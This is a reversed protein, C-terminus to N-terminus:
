QPVRPTSQHPSPLCDMRLWEADAPPPVPDLHDALAFQTVAIHLFNRWKTFNSAKLDLTVPILGKINQIATAQAWLAAHPHPLPVVGADFM